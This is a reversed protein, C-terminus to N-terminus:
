GMLSQLTSTGTEQNPKTAPKRLPIEASLCTGKGKEADISLKGGLQEARERMIVLGLGQGGGSQCLTEVSDFGVGDDEVVLSIKDQKQIVSLYVNRAGSHRVANTMAEEIALVVDDITGPDVAHTHLYDRIRERARLLRAPELPLSFTLTPLTIDRMVPM